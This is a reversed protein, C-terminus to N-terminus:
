IKSRLIHWIIEETINVATPIALFIGYAVAGVATYPSMAVSLDPTYEASSGGMICCFIVIAFLGAMIVLLCKDRKEFRYLSFTTRKGAGFGRSRMSDAMIIGGELAWSTMASVITLGHEIKEGATGNEASMGISKRAGSIQAIKKEYNPLLRLIMTLVLSVSPVARGFLYLFKDSTMVFSYSAFWLLITVVMAALAIGYCLAELTYHRGNWWTFLVRDGYTNFLPNVFSLMLFLPIMGSIFGAAKRGKVTIYYAMAAVASILLFVPHILMMGLLFAGVYFTFNIVPHFASFTDRKENM